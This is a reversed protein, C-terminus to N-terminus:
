KFAVGPTWRTSIGGCVSWDRNVALWFGPSFSGLRVVGPYVNLLATNETYGSLVLSALLSNDRDYYVGSTWVLDATAQQEAPLHVIRRARLGGGASLAEGGDFRYSAGILGNLGAMYFLSVREGFPLRWKFSFYQGNNQMSWPAFAFSPQLSWDAMHLTGSFFEKVADSTFLIIGGIDFLYIDAIPDVTEFPVIEMTENLLHYAAMTAVSWLFPQAFGHAEYWETMAVSSMGGGILHLQYNPWWLAQRKRWDIPFVETTLFKGWGIRSIVGFPNGLNRFMSSGLRAYQYEGLHRSNGDMQIIDFSGNLLLSLPNYQSESGFDKGTYFYARRQVTSDQARVCPPLLCIAACAIAVRVFAARRSPFVRRVPATEIHTGNHM